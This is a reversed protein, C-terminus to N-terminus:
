PHTEPITILMAIDELSGISLIWPNRETCEAYIRYEHQYSFRERKHFPTLKEHVADTEKYYTVFGDYMEYGVEQLRREVRRLFEPCDLLLIMTDYGTGIRKIETLAEPTGLKSRDISTLCYISGPAESREGYVIRSRDSLRLQEGSPLHITITPNAPNLYSRYNEYPDGIGGTQEITRFTGIPSMYLEGYAILREMHCRRGLKALLRENKMM